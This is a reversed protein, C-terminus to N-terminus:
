TLLRQATSIVFGNTTSNVFVDPSGVATKEVLGMMMACAVDEM